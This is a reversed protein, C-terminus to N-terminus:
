KGKRKSLDNVKLVVVEPGFLPRGLGLSIQFVPLSQLRELTNFLFVDDAPGLAALKHPM